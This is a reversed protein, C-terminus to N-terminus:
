LPIMHIPKGAELIVDEVNRRSSKWVMVMSCVNQVLQGEDLWRRRALERESQQAVEMSVTEPGIALM